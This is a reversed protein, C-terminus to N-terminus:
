QLASDMIGRLFEVLPQMGSDPLSIDDAQLILKKGGSQIELDYVFCDACVTPLKPATFELSTVLGQLETLQEQSLEGAVARGDREDGASYKGNSSAEIHRLLGMIGGSQIMSVSWEEALVPPTYVVTPNGEGCACVVLAAMFLVWKFKAM